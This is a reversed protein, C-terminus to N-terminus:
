ELDNLDDLDIGFASGLLNLLESADPEEDSNMMNEFKLKFLEAELAANEHSLDSLMMESAALYGAAVGISTVRENEPCAKMAEVIQPNINDIPYSKGSLYGSEHSALQVINDLADDLKDFIKSGPMGSHEDAQVLAEKFKNIKRDYSALVEIDSTDDIAKLFNAEAYESYATAASAIMSVIEENM